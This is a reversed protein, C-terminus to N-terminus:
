LMQPMDMRHCSLLLNSEDLLCTGGAAGLLLCSLNRFSPCHRHFTILLPSISVTPSSAAVTAACCVSPNAIGMIVLNADVEIRPESTASTVAALAFVVVRVLFSVFRM